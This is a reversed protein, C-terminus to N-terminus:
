QSDANTFRCLFQVEQNLGKNVAMTGTVNCYLVPEMVTIISVIRIAPSVAASLPNLYRLMSKQTVMKNEQIFSIQQWMLCSFPDTFGSFVTCWRSQELCCDCKELGSIFMTTCSVASAPSLESFSFSHQVCTQSWM